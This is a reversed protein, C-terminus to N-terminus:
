ESLSWVNEGRSSLIKEYFQIEADLPAVAARRKERLTNLISHAAKTDIEKARKEFEEDTKPPEFKGHPDM